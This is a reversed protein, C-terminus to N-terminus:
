CFPQPTATVSTENSIKFRESHVPPVVRKVEATFCWCVPTFDLRTGSSCRYSVVAELEGRGSAWWQEHRAPSPLSQQLFPSLLQQRSTAKNPGDSRHSPADQQLQKTEARALGSRGM